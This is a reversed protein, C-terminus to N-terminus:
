EEAFTRIYNVLHWREQESLDDQFAPMVSGPFGESIWAFLQGDPHVGPATHISLDAPSPNLSVGVPGDGAGTIGHCALCNEQFLIEGEAISDLNPAVPNVPLTTPVGGPPFFFVSIGVGLLAFTLIPQALRQRRSLLPMWARIAFFVAIAAGVLIFGSVRYWDFSTLTSVGIPLVFNAFVDFRDIRRVAVQVQWEDAVGFFAGQVQYSGDEQLLLEAESPPLDATTPTFQLSVERAEIFLEGDRYLNVKYTNLGVRGPDVSLEVDLDETRQSEIIFLPNEADQAPPLATLVGVLLLLLAGLVLEISLSSQFWSLPGGSIQAQEVARRLRPSVVLLHFAGLLVMLGALLLKELLTQGYLTGTLSELTGVRLWAAYVGTLTLVAVSAIALFSFRQVVAALLQNRQQADVQLTSWLATVFLVLGGVWVSAAVLHVWDALVPLFPEAEAAAHSGISTTLLLAGMSIFLLWKSRQAHLQPLFAVLTLVLAVRALWLAGSRTTFLLSGVAESWPVALETGQVQGGQVLLMIIAGFLLALLGIHLVAKWREGLDLKFDYKALVPQLVFLLFLVGGMVTAGGLYGLWRGVVEGLSLSVTQSAAAAAALAAADVKGVSFPYAGSTVHGDVSSLVRWVVTYVGDPISRMSITLRTPDAPDLKSDGVDVQLGNSDLVEITSFAAELPESFLIEIQAPPRELAANAEPTAQVLNAHARASGSPILLAVGVLFLAIVSKRIVM